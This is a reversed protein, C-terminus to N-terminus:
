LGVSVIRIHALALEQDFTQQLYVGNIVGSENECAASAFLTRAAIINVNILGGWEVERQCELLRNPVQM